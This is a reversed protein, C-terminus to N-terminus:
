TQWILFVQTTLLETGPLSTIDLQCGRRARWSALANAARPGESGNAHLHGKAVSTVLGGTPTEKELSKPHGGQTTIQDSSQSVGSSQM